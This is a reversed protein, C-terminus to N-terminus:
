PRIRTVPGVPEPLDVVTAEQRSQILRWWARWMTVSSSGMSYRNSFSRDNKEWRSIRCSEGLKAVPRRAASRWLGSTSNRPSIRSASVAMVASCAASVPCRTM